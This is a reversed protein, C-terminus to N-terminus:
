QDFIKRKVGIEKIDGYKYDTNVGDSLLCRVPNMLAFRHRCNSNCIGM